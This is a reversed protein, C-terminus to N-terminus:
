PKAISVYDFHLRIDSIHDLAVHSEVVSRPIFLVYDGWLGMGALEQTGPHSTSSGFGPHISNDFYTEVLHAPTFSTADCSAAPTNGTIPGSELFLNRCPRRASIQYPDPRVGQGDCWQSSFSNRKHLQLSATPTNGTNANGDSLILAAVAWTREACRDTYQDFPRLAFSVRQGTWTGAADYVANSPDTLRRRFAEVDCGSAGVASDLQSCLSVQMVFEEPRRGNVNRALVQAHIASRTAELQTPHIARLIQERETGLSLQAEYEVARLALYVLRKAWRMQRQYSDIHGSLWSEHAFKPISTNDERDIAVRADRVTIRVQDKLNALQVLARARESMALAIEQQATRMGVLHQEADNFCTLEQQLSRLETMLAQHRAEAVAQKAEIFAAVGEGHFQVADGVVGLMSIGFTAVASTAASIGKSIFSGAAREVEARERAFALEAMTDAHRNELTNILANGGQIIMCSRMANDYRDILDGMRSTAVDVARSATHVSLAMEGLTGAYCEPHQFPSSPPEIPLPNANPYKARCVAIADAVYESPLDGDLRPHENWDEIPYREISGNPRNIVLDSNVPDQLVGIAVVQSDSTLQRYFTDMNTAEWRLAGGLRHRLMGGMCVNFGVQDNSAARWVNMGAEADWYCASPGTANLFCLGPDVDPEGDKNVDMWQDLMDQSAKGPKAGCLQQLAAGYRVRVETKRQKSALANLRDSVTHTHWTNWTNAAREYATEAEDIAHDALNLLYDSSAFFRENASPPNVFYLPLDGDDVGLPNEGLALRRTATATKVWATALQRQAHTFRPVWTPAPSGARAHLQTALVDVATAYRMAKAARALARDRDKVSVAYSAAQVENGVLELYAVLGEAMAVPVGIGQDDRALTTNALEENARRWDYPRTRYDPEALVDPALNALPTAIAPNLLTAWGNELVDLLAARSPVRGTGSATNYPSLPDAKIVTAITEQQNGERAVFTHIQLWQQVLRHFVADAAQDEASPTTSAARSAAPRSAWHAARFFRPLNICGASAFLQVQPTGTPFSARLDTMCADLLDSPALPTAALHNSFFRAAGQAAGSPSDCTLDGPSTLAGQTSSENISLEGGRLEGSAGSQCLYRQACRLPKHATPVAPDLISAAFVCRKPACMAPCLNPPPPCACDGQPHCGYETALAQCSQPQGIGCLIHNSSSGADWECQYMSQTVGADDWQEMRNWLASSNLTSAPGFLARIAAQGALPTVAPVPQAAYVPVAASDGTRRLAVSWRVNLGAVSGTIFPELEGDLTGNGRAVATTRGSRVVTPTTPTTTEAGSVSWACAGMGPPPNVCDISGFLVGNPGLVRSPDSIVFRYTGAPFGALPGIEATVTVSEGAVALNGPAIVRGEYHGTVPLTAVSLNVLHVPIQIRQTGAYVDISWLDPGVAPLPVAPDREVLFRRAAGGAAINTTFCESSPDLSTRDAPHIAACGCSAGAPLTQTGDCTVIVGHPVALRVEPVAANVASLRLAQRVPTGVPLPSALEFSLPSAVLQGQTAPIEDEPDDTGIACRGRDDCVQGSACNSNSRCDYTCAGLECRSGCPCDTDSACALFADVADLETPDHCVSPTVVSQSAADHDDEDACGATSALAICALAVAHIRKV